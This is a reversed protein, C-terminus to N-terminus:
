FNTVPELNLIPLFPSKCSAATSWCRGLHGAKVSCAIERLAFKRGQRRGWSQEQANFSGFTRRARKRRSAQDRHGDAVSYISAAVRRLLPAASPGDRCAGQSSRDPRSSCHDGSCSHRRLGQFRWEWALVVDAVNSSQSTNVFRTICSCARRRHLPVQRALLTYSLFSGLFSIILVPQTRLDILASILLSM